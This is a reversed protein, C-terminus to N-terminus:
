VIETFRPDGKIALIIKSIEDYKTWDGTKKIKELENEKKEELNEIEFVNIENKKKKEKKYLLLFVGM